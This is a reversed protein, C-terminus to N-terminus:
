CFTGLPSNAVSCRPSIKGGITLASLQRSLLSLQLPVPWTVPFWVDRSSLPGLPLRLFAALPLLRWSRFTLKKSMKSDNCYLWGQLWSSEMMCLHWSVESSSKTLYIFFFVLYPGFDGRWELLYLSSNRSHNLPNLVCSTDLLILTRDM